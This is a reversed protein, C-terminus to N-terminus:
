DNQQRESLLFEALKFDLHHDIDVSDERKMVYSYVNSDLFFTEQELLQEIKAIYIAGNLRYYTPLAQSRPNKKVFSSIFNQMNGDKDLTNSWLPPHDCECVSIVGNAIKHRLTAIAESINKNTRLPSTPQLWLIYDYYKNKDEFFEVAHKVVDIATAKDGSISKPRLFPVPVGSKKAIDAINECDTSVVIDSIEPAQQAAEITWQVLPKGCLIKSNKGPLRKSGARAPIIALIKDVM